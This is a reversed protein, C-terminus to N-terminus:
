NPHSALRDSLNKMARRFMTGMVAPAAPRGLSWLWTPDLAFTWRVMTADGDDVPTMTWEEVLAKAIPATSSDVRYAWRSPADWAVITERYTMGGVRVERKSGLGARGGDPYSGGSFGPFWTWTSPDASIAEFVRTPSAAVRAEYVYSEAATTVFDVPESRMPASM